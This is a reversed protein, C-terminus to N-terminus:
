AGKYQKIVRNFEVIEAVQRKCDDLANHSKVFEPLGISHIKSLERVTRVSRTEYYQWPTKLKYEKYLNDLIACDFDPDCAWICKKNASYSVQSEGLFAELLLLANRVPAKNEGLFIAAREPHEAVQKIWWAVTGQDIKRDNQDQLRLEQYFENHIAGSVIDFEVAGISLVVTNVATSLTEIDVMFHKKTTM